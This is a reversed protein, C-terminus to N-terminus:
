CEMMTDAHRGKLFNAKIGEEVLQGMEHIHIVIYSDYNWQGDIFFYVPSRHHSAQYLWRGM